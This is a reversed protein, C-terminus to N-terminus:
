QKEVLGVLVAGAPLTVSISYDGDGDLETIVGGAVKLTGTPNGTIVPASITPATLTKGTLTQTQDTTVVTRDASATRDYYKMEESDSDVGIPAVNGATDGPVATPSASRELFRTAM